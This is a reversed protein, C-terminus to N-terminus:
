GKLGLINLLGVRVLTTTFDQSLRIQGVRFSIRPRRKMIPKRALEFMFFKFTCNYCIDFYLRLNVIARNALISYGASAAAMIQSCSSVALGFLAFFLYRHKRKELFYVPGGFISTLATIWVNTLSQHNIRISGSEQILFQYDSGSLSMQYLLTRVFAEMMITVAVNVVLLHLIDSRNQWWVRRYNRMANLFPHSLVLPSRVAYRATRYLHPIVGSIRSTSQVRTHHSSMQSVKAKLPNTSIHYNKRDLKTLEENIKQFFVQSSWLRECTKTM